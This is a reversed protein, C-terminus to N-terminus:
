KGQEKEAIEAAFRRALTVLYRPKYSKTINREHRRGDMIIDMGTFERGGLNKPWGGSQVSVYGHETEVGGYITWAGSDYQEERFSSRYFVYGSRDWQEIEKPM